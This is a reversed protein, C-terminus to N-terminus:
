RTVIPFFSRLPTPRRCELGGGVEMAYLQEHRDIDDALDDDDLGDRHPVEM